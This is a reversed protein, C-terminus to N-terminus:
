SMSPERLAYLVMLLTYWKYVLVVCISIWLIWAVLSSSTMDTSVWPRWLAGLSHRTANLLDQRTVVSPDFKSWVCSYFTSVEESKREHEEELPYSVAEISKLENEMESRVVEHFSQPLSVFEISCLFEVLSASRDSSPSTPVADSNSPDKDDTVSRPTKQVSLSCFNPVDDTLDFPVIDESSGTLFVWRYQLYTELM